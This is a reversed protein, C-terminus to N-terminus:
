ALKPKFANPAVREGSLMAVRELLSMKRAIAHDSEADLLNSPNSVIAEHLAPGELLPRSATGGEALKQQQQQQYQAPTTLAELIRLSEDM